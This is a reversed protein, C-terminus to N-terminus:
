IKTKPGAASIYEWWNRGYYMTWLPKFFRFSLIWITINEYKMLLYYIEIIEAPEFSSFFDLSRRMVLLSFITFSVFCVTASEIVSATFFFWTSIILFATLLLWAMISVFWSSLSRLFILEVKDFMGFNAMEKLNVLVRQTLIFKTM